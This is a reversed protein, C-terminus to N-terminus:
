TWSLSHICNGVVLIMSGLEWTSQSVAAGAYAWSVSLHAEDWCMNEPAASPVTTLWSTPLM